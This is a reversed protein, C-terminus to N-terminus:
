HFKKGTLNNAEERSTAYTRDNQKNLGGNVTLIKEDTFMIPM